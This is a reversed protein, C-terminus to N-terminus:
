QEPDDVERKPIDLYVKTPTPLNAWLKTGVEEGIVGIIAKRTTQRDSKTKFAIPQRDEMHIKKVEAAKMAETLEAKLMKAKADAERAEDAAQAARAAMALVGQPVGANREVLKGLDEVASGSSVLTPEIPGTGEKKQQHAGGLADLAAQLNGNDTTM